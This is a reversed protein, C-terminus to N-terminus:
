VIRRGLKVKRAKIEGNLLYPPPTMKGGGGTDLTVFVVNTKQSNLTRHDNKLPPPALAPSVRWIPWGGCFCNKGKGVRIEIHKIEFM